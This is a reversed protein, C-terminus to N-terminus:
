NRVSPPMSKRFLALDALFIPCDACEVEESVVPSTKLSDIELKADSNQTELEAVRTRADELSARLEKRMKKAERLMDDRNDLFLGLRENEQCLFPLEDRVEDDSDSDSDSQTSKKSGSSLVMTCFGDRAFCSLGSLNKSSKMAKCRDGEDESSSLSSTSYASSSDVDSVGVM